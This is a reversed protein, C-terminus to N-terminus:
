VYFKNKTHYLLYPLHQTHLGFPFFDSPFPPSKYILKNQTLHIIGLAITSSNAHKFSYKPLHYFISIQFAMGKNKIHLMSSQHSLFAHLNSPLSNDTTFNFLNKKLDSRIPWHSSTWERGRINQQEKIKEIKTYTYIYIKEKQTNRYHSHDMFNQLRKRCFRDQLWASIHLLYANWELQQFQFGDTPMVQLAGGSTIEREREKERNQNLYLINHLILNQPLMISKPVTM